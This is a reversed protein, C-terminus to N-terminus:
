HARMCTCNDGMAHQDGGAVGAACLSETSEGDFDQVAAHGVGKSYLEVVKAALADHAQTGSGPPKTATRNFVLPEVRASPM